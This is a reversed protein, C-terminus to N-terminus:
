NGFPNTYANMPNIDVQFPNKKAFAETAYTPATIEEATAPTAPTAPIQAPVLTEAPDNQAIPDSTAPPQGPQMMFFAAGCAVVVVSAIMVVITSKSM